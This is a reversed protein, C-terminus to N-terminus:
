KKRTLQGTFTATQGDAVETNIVLPQLGRAVFEVRHTGPNLPLRRIQGDFDAVQGAYFGDVYVSADSPTVELKLGANAFARSYGGSRQSYGMSSGGATGWYMGPDYAANDWRRLQLRNAISDGLHVARNWAGDQCGSVANVINPGWTGQPGWTQEYAALCGNPDLPGKTPVTGGTPGPKASATVRTAGGPTSYWSTSAAAGPEASGSRGERIAELRQHMEFPSMERGRPQDRFARSEGSTVRGGGSETVTTTTATSVETKANAAGAGGGSPLNTGAGGRPAPDTQAFAPAPLILIVATLVTLGTWLTTRRM